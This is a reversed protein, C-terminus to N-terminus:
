LNMYSVLLWMYTLVMIVMVCHILITGYNNFNNNPPNLTLKQCKSMTILSAVLYSDVELGMIMGSRKPEFVGDVAHYDSNTVANIGSHWLQLSSHNGVTSLPHNNWVSILEDM